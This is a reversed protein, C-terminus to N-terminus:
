FQVLSSVTECISCDMQVIESFDAFCFKSFWYALNTLPPHSPPHTHDLNSLPPGVFFGFILLRGPVLIQFQLAPVGGQPM